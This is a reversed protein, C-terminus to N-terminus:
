GGRPRGVRPAGCWGEAAQVRPRAAVGITTITWRGAAIAAAPVLGRFLLDHDSLDEDWVVVEVQEDPKVFLYTSSPAWDVQWRDDFKPSRCITRGAQALDM